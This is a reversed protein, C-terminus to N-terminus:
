GVAQGLARAIAAVAMGRAHVERLGAAAILQQVHGARVGGGALITIRGQAHEVLNQLTNLNNWASGPGGATLVRSVGLDVLLDLDSMPEPVSDFARHFTVPRPGSAAVLDRIAGADPRGDSGLFGLVFGSAGAKAFAALQRTLLGLDGPQLHFAGGRLRLMAHVPLSVAACTAELLSLAPSLGDLDLRSCLELRNAGCREAEIAEALTTVCAEILVM